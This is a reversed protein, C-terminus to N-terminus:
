GEDTSGSTRPYVPIIERRTIIERRGNQIKLRLRRFYEKRQESCYFTLFYKIRISPFELNDRDAERMTETVLNFPARVMDFIEKDTYGYERSIKRVIAQTNSSRM